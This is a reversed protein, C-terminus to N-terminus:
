ATGKATNSSVGGRNARRGRRGARFTDPGRGVTARNGRPDRHLDAARAIDTLAAVLAALKTDESSTVRVAAASLQEIKDLDAEVAKRLAVIDFQGAPLAKGHSELLAELDEDDTASVEHILETKVVHGKGLAALFARHERAMKELTASFAFVSSEFRKLLGSRLLGVTAAVRAEDEGFLEAQTGDLRYSDPVYRAFTIAGPGLDPDLAEEILDFLEALPESLQYRVTIAKPELFVITAETGDPLRILDGSYHKKVFQRTRKVTTADIIPYLLDPSLSSPDQKAAAAFRAKISLIGRDALFADQRMYYQILTYLDWLSNNVPTATLLLVDRRQGWLLRRLVAARTPTDPNRYNHAEDVVVLQYENLGRQLKDQFRDPNSM